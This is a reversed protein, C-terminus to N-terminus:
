ALALRSTVWNLVLRGGPTARLRHSDAVLLGSNVLSCVEPHGAELGLATLDAFAVGETIRLGSLLREEAASVPSLIETEAPGLGHNQVRDMYDGPRMAAITAQRAGNLTIRGHAGPGIGLYDEGRWYLLNHRSQHAGSLAHNSVEYADFGAQGLVHQTVEYLDAALDPGPPTLHGRGVARDFATGTEITLQYPSVHRAGLRLAAELERAWASATQGPRAYILDISLRPFIEAALGAARQGELSTHDRGLVKLAEDDLAQLGLSLRNVGASRFGRFKAAEADTPNAELTVEIEGHDPWLRRCAALIEAIWEPAMLSPTGGGFFVSVLTRPGLRAAQAELDKLIAAKLALGQDERGRHRYVNFDCYPCIRSCFPWHVYVGLAPSL